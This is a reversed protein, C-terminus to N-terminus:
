KACSDQGDSRNTMVGCAVCQDGVEAALPNINGTNEAHFAPGRRGFATKESAPSVSHSLLNQADIVFRLRRQRSGNLFFEAPPKGCIQALSVRESNGIVSEADCSRFKHLLCGRFALARQVDREVRAVLEMSVRFSSDSRGRWVLGFEFRLMVRGNTLVSALESTGAIAERLDGNVAAILRNIDGACAVGNKGRVSERECAPYIREFGRVDGVDRSAQHDHLAPGGGDRAFLKEFSDASFCRSCRRLHHALGGGFDHRWVHQAFLKRFVFAVAPSDNKGVTAEVGQVDSMNTIEFAGPAFPVNEDHAHICIGADAMELPGATGDEILIGARLENGRKATHIVDYEERFGVHLSKQFFKVRVDVGFSSVIRGFGHRFAGDSRPQADAYGDHTVRFIM